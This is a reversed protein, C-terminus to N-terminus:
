GVTSPQGKVQVSSDIPAGFADTTPAETASTSASANNDVRFPTDEDDADAATDDADDTSANSTSSFGVAEGGISAKGDKVTFTEDFERYFYQKEGNSDVYGIVVGLKYTGAAYKNVSFVVDFDTQDANKCQAASHDVGSIGATMRAQYAYQKGTSQNTVILFASSKAGDFDANNLYGYGNVQVYRNSNPESVYLNTLEVEGQHTDAPVSFGKSRLKILKSSPIKTPEPTATPVPTPTPTATPEATPTPIATPEPTPTPTATPEPTATITLDVVDNQSEGNADDAFLSTPNETADVVYISSPGDAGGIISSSDSNPSATMEVYPRMSADPDALKDSYDFHALFFYGACVLIIVTFLGIFFYLVAIGKNNRKRGKQM